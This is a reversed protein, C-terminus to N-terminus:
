VGPSPPPGGGDATRPDFDGRTPLSKRLPKVTAAVKAWLEAEEPTLGRPPRNM